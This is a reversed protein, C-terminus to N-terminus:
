CNSSVVDEDQDQLVLHPRHYWITTCMISLRQHNLGEKKKKASLHAFAQPFFLPASQACGQFHLEWCAAIYDRQPLKSRKQYSSQNDVAM